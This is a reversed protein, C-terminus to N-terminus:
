DEEKPPPGTVTFSAIFVNIITIAFIGATVYINLRKAAVSKSKGQIYFWGKYILTIGIALQLILSLTILIVNIYFTSSHQNYEVMYRLQNANATILAIDMMGQAVTKKAAFSNAPKKIEQDEQAEVDIVEDEEMKLLKKNRRKGDIEDVGEETDITVEQLGGLEEQNKKGGDEENELIIKSQLKIRKKPKNDKAEEDYTGVKNKQINKEDPIDEDDETTNDTDNIKNSM